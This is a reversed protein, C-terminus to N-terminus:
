KRGEKCMVNTSAYVRGGSPKPSPSLKHIHSKDSQPVNTALQSVPFCLAMHNQKHPSIQKLLKPSVSVSVEVKRSFFPNKQVWQHLRGVDSRIIGLIFHTAWFRAYGVVIGLLTHQGLGRLGVVIALLTDQGLGWM